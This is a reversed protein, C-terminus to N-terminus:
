KKFVLLRNNAPMPHDEILNLGNQQALKVVAEFNRIGSKPNRQKLWLDFAANSESTYKGQYNFPGYICLDAQELSNESLRQFLVEVESWEMIHLTNATFIASIARVPWIEFNVDLELPKLVNELGSDNVWTEIGPLNEKLDTPQWIIETMQEAFYCAHQGTGSGIEYVTSGPSYVNRIIQLIPNKNNECAQSFPKTKTMVLSRKNM